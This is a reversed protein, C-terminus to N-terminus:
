KTDTKMNYPFLHAGHLDACGNVWALGTIAEAFNALSFRSDLFTIGTLSDKFRISIEAEQNTCAGLYNTKTIMLKIDLDRMHNM